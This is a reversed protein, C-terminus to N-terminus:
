GHRWGRAGIMASSGCCPATISSRFSRRASRFSRIARIPSISPNRRDVVLDSPQNHYKGDLLADVPVTRGDSTFEVLRRGGEQAGYLEGNPGLALGNVRNTYRRLESLAKSVPDFRLLRGEDITSFLVEGRGPDWVVGGTPGEFPGAVLEFQWAM